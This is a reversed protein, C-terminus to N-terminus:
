DHKGYIETFKNFDGQIFLRKIAVEIPQRRLKKITIVYENMKEHADADLGNQMEELIQHDEESDVQGGDM